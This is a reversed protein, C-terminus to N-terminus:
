KMKMKILYYLRRITPRVMGYILYIKLKMLQSFTMKNYKDAYYLCYQYAEINHLKAEVRAFNYIYDSSYHKAIYPVIEKAIETSDHRILRRGTQTQQKDHIRSLVGIENSVQVGYGALFMKIWMLYDQSYRLSEDFRYGEDFFDKPILFACGNYSGEKLMNLLIMNSNIYGSKKYISKRNKKAVLESNKDIYKVNCLSVVKDKGDRIIQEIQQEIKQPTYKDDHSLWSFYKGKMNKIGVNLASSVGGNEKKIYIIKDKYALAIKETEGNDNSGDNVVIVEINSYTQNLASDIAEKMYKSGNFVPIIISVLPKNQM